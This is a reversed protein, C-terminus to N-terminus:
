IKTKNALLYIITILLIIIVLVAVWGWPVNQLAFLSAVQPTSTPAVVKEVVKEVVKTQTIVKPATYTTAPYYTTPQTYSLTPVGVTLYNSCNQTVRRSGSRVEVSATKQGANNYSYSISRSTGHLGETGRWDYKYNGSGGSVSAEWVVRTGAPAFTVNVRCSVYLSGNNNDYYDYDYNYNDNYDNDYDNDVEVSDCNRHITQGDSKVTVTANKTGSTTYRKTVSTGSGDLGNTGDWSVNYNGNGGHPTARWTVREDVDIRSPSAYCEVTLRPSYNDDYNYSDSGNSNGNNNTQTNTNSNNIVTAPAPPTYYLYGNGDVTNGANNGSNSVTAGPSNINSNVNNSNTYTNNIEQPEDDSCSFLCFPDLPNFPNFDAYAFRPAVAGIALVVFFASIILKKM